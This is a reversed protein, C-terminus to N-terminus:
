AAKTLGYALEVSSHPTLLQAEEEGERNTKLISIPTHTVIARITDGDVATTRIENKGTDHRREGACHDLFVKTIDYKILLSDLSKNQFILSVSDASISEIRVELRGQNKEGVFRMLHDGDVKTVLESNTECQAFLCLISSSVLITKILESRM